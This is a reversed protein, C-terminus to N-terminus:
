NKSFPPRRTKSTRISLKVNSKEILQVLDRLRHRVSELMPLTVDGWWEEAQIDQILQM